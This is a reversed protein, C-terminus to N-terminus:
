SLICPGWAYIITRAYVDQVIWVIRLAFISKNKNLCLFVAILSVVLLRLNRVRLDYQYASHLYVDHHDRDHEENGILQSSLGEREQQSGIFAHSVLRGQISLHWIRYVHLLTVM